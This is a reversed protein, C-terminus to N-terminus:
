FRLSLCSLGGDLKAFESIDLEMVALGHDLLQRRVGPFGAPLFVKDNIVLINAGGAEQAPVPLTQRGAFAPQMAFAETALLTEEDIGTVGTKLHLHRTVPVTESSLGCGDLIRRLQEAGAPNTRKSLGIFFHRGVQMVDGGDLTGPATITEIRTFYRELTTRIGATEGRRSPAGPRTIVARDPLLVATDEVFTADPHREDAELVLVELGCDELAIIYQRHQQCAKVYDPKGLDAGTLGTMLNRGPTRVIANTFRM